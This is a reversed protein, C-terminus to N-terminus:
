NKGKIIKAIKLLKSSMKLGSNKAAEHNIELKIKNKAQKLNIMGGRDAFKNMDSVTLIHRDKIMELIDALNNKESPSIFLIHCEKIESSGSYQRVELKKGKVRKDKISDLTSGFPDEGIICIGLPLSSDAFTESPWEVFKAFNYLYAAKVKYEAYKAKDNDSNLAAASFGYLMMIMFLSVILLFRGTKILRVIYWGYMRKHKQDKV